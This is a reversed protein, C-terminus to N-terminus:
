KMHRTLIGAFPDRKEEVSKSDSGDSRMVTTNEITKVREVVGGVAETLAQVSRVISEVASDKDQVEKKEDKPAGEDKPPTVSRVITDLKESLAAVATDVAQTVMKEVEARTVHEGEEPQTEPAAVGETGQGEKAEAEARQVEEETEKKVEEAKKTMQSEKLEEEMSSRTVLVVGPPLGDLLNGVFLAFQAAARYILEKRVELPLQSYFLIDEVVRRLTHIAQESLNCFEVDYLAAAFDLQGWGWSGYAAESVVTYLSQPVDNAESRVISCIVGDDVQVKGVTENEPVAGRKAIFCTDANEVADAAIDIGKAQLFASVEEESRYIEKDFSISILKLGQTDRTKAEESRAIVVLRDEGIPVLVTDDTKKEEYDSRRLLVKGEERVIDYDDIGYLKADAEIAGDETGEPYEIYLFGDQVSRRQRHIRKVPVAVEEGNESRVVRFGIQNAPSKTLTLAKPEKMSLVKVSRSKKTKEEM